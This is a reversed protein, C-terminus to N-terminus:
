VITNPYHQVCFHPQIEVCNICKSFVLFINYVQCLTFDLTLVVGGFLVGYGMIYNLHDGFAYIFIFWM